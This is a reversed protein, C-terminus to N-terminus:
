AYNFELEKGGSADEHDETTEEDITQTTRKKKVCSFM